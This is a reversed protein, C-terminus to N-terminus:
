YSASSSVKLFAAGENRGDVLMEPVASVTAYIYSKSLVAHPNDSAADKSLTEGTNGDIVNSHDIYSM